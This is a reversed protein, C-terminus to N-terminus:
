SLEKAINSLLKGDYKGDCFTKFYKMIESMNKISMSTIKERIECESLQQPIYKELVELQLIDKTTEKIGDIMKKVIKVIEIDNLEIKGSTSQENREIESKLVRLISLEITNKAKMAIKIEETIQIKLSM